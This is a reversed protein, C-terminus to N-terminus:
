SLTGVCLITPHWYRRGGELLGPSEMRGSVFLGRARLRSAPMVGCGIGCEQILWGIPPPRDSCYGPEGFSRKRQPRNGATYKAKSLLNRLVVESIRREGFSSLKPVYRSNAAKISAATTLTLQMTREAM